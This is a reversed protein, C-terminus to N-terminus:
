AGHARRKKQFDRDRGISNAPRLLHFHVRVGCQACAPFRHGEVLTAEHDQRHMEHRVTYVGSQPVKQGPRYSEDQM